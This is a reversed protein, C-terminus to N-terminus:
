RAGDDDGMDDRIIARSEFDMAWVLVKTWEEDTMAKIREQLAYERMQFRFRCWACYHLCEREIFVCDCPEETASM